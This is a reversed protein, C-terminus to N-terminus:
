VDAGAIRGAKISIAPPSVARLPASWAISGGCSCPCKQLTMLLIMLPHRRLGAIWM